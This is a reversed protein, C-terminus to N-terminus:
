ICLEDIRLEYTQRIIELMEEFYEPPVELEISLEILVLILAGISAKKNFKNNDIMALIGESIRIGEKKLNELSM